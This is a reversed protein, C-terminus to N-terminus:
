PEKRAGVKAGKRSETWGRKGKGKTEVRDVCPPRLFRKTRTTRKSTLIIPTSGAVVAKVLMKHCTSLSDKM